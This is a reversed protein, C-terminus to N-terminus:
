QNDRAIAKEAGPGTIQIGAPSFNESIIAQQVAAGIEIAPQAGDLLYNKLIFRGAHIQFLAESPVKAWGRANGQILSVTGTGAHELLCDLKGWFASNTLQLNGKFEPTTRLMVRRASDDEPRLPITVFEGNVIQLGMPQTQEVQVCTGCADAGIGTFQGNCGGHGLDVFKYGIKAGFVFTGLVSQWDSRAFIFAELHKQMYVAVALDVNPKADKPVGPHGSRPWYHPNFHVNEIRGIDTCRDILIGRRLVCGFVNRILHLEHQDMLIGNYSNVLTVNEVTPHMGSGSITWPYPQINSLQQDPYCITVNKLASSANLQIAAPDNERGQGFHIMFVTGRTLIGHHPADWAGSLTVGTPISLPAELRYQGAALNVEGGGQAAQQDLAQQITQTCDNKGSPNVNAVVM